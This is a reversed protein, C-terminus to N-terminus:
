RGRKIRRAFALIPRLMTIRDHLRLNGVDSRSSRQVALQPVAFATRIDDNARRFWVYAGDIPPHAGDYVLNDLYDCLRRATNATFGMMHAGVIDSTYLDGPDTAEYGGYFIDWPTAPDPLNGASLAAPTFQCDDELILVNMGADAAERLIQLHSLYVGRAGVSYFDGQDAPRIAEFFSVRPDDALGIRALERLMDARRDTRYPLNIIRIQDFPELM